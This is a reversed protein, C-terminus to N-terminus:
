KFCMSVGQLFCDSLDDTKKMDNYYNLIEEKNSVKNNLFYEMMHVSLTKNYKYGKTTCGLKNQISTRIENAVSGDIEKLVRLKNNASCFSIGTNLHLKRKEMVFFTYIIIQITKMIPNLLAPQNEIFIDDYLKCDFNQLFDLLTNIVKNIDHKKNENSIDKVQLSFIHYPLENDSQYIFDCFALKKIGIDFSLIRM